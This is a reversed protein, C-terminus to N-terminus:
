IGAAVRFGACPLNSLSSLGPSAYGDAGHGLNAGFQVRAGTLMTGIAAYLASSFCCEIISRAATAPGPIPLL